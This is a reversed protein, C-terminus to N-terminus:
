EGEKLTNLLEDRIFAAMGLAVLYSVQDDDLTVPEDEDVSFVFTGDDLRDVNLEMTSAAPNSGVVLVKYPDWESWVSNLTWLLRLRM